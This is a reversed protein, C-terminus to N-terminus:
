PAWGRMFPEVAMMAEIHDVANDRLRQCCFLYVAYGGHGGGCYKRADAGDVTPLEEMGEERQAAYSMRVATCLAPYSDKQVAGAATDGAMKIM